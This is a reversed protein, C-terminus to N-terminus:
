DLRKQRGTKWQYSWFLDQEALVEAFVRNTALFLDVAATAEHAIDLACFGPAREPAPLDPRLLANKIAEEDIKKGYVEFDRKMAEVGKHTPTYFLAQICNIIVRLRTRKMQVHISPWSSGDKYQHVEKTIQIISGEAYRAEGGGFRLCDRRFDVEIEQPTVM